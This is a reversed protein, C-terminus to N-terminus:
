SDCLSCTRLGAALQADRDAVVTPKARVVPCTVIHFRTGGPVSVRFVSDPSPLEVRASTHTTAGEELDALAAALLRRRGRVARLGRLLWSSEAAGTVVVALAALASFGIQRQPDTSTATGYWAGCLLVLGLLVGQGRRLLDPVEWPESAGHVDAPSPRSTVAQTM